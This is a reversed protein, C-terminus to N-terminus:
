IGFYFISLFYSNLIALALHSAIGNIRRDVAFDKVLGALAVALGFWSGRFGITIVLIVNIVTALGWVDGWDFEYPRNLQFFERM